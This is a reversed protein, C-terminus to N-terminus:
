NLTDSIIKTIDQFGTFLHLLLFGRYKLDGDYAHHRTPYIPTSLLSLLHLIQQLEQVPHRAHWVPGQWRSDRVNYEPIYKMAPFLELEDM